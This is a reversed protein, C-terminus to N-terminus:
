LKVEKILEEINEAFLMVKLLDENTEFKGEDIMTKILLSASNLEQKYESLLDYIQGQLSNLIKLKSNIDKM